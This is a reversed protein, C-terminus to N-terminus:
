PFYLFANVDVLEDIGHRKLSLKVETGRRGRLRKVIADQPMKVGAVLTDALQGVYHSILYQEDGQLVYVPAFTQNKIASKLGEETFKAM